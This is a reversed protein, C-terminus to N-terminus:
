GGEAVAREAATEGPTMWATFIEYGVALVVAGVFLGVIGETIAGGIAGILIVLMPTDVGRGLLMPKLFADSMSVVIAYVLFLTAPVGDAVSYYWVAVPGLVILPPLQVIALVLVVGAVLGAAPLGIAVFGAAALIAQIAAVGLVGKVVSRVTLVSLDILKTGSASGTLRTAVSRAVRYAGEAATLLAGAIITAFVFQFVGGAVTGAFGVLSQGAAKLQPQFRNLAGALNDAADLWLAHFREGIVPWGAVSPDPPPIHVKGDQLNGALAALGEVTSEALLWTPLIIVVLGALVLATASAGARGGLRATLTVHLPYLAIAIISGWVVIGVFPRVISYCWLVLLAVAGIQIFSALMSSM